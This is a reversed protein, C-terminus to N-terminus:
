EAARDQGFDGGHGQVQDLDFAVGGDEGVFHEGV